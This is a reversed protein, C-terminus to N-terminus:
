NNNKMLLARYTSLDNAHSFKISVKSARDNIPKIYVLEDTIKFSGNLPELTITYEKISFIPLPLVLGIGDSSADVTKARCREGNEFQVYFTKLVDPLKEAPIRRQNRRDTNKQEANMISDQITNYWLITGHLGSISFNSGFCWPIGNYDM